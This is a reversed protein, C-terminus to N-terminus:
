FPGELAGCVVAWARPIPRLRKLIYIYIYIYIHMCVYMCVYMKGWVRIEGRRLAVLPESVMAFYVHLFLM